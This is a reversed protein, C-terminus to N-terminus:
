KMENADSALKRVKTTVPASVDKSSLPEANPSQAGKNQVKSSQPKSHDRSVRRPRNGPPATQIESIRRRKSILESDGNSTNTKAPARESIKKTAALTFTRVQPRQIFGRKKPSRSIRVTRTSPLNKVSEQLPRKRGILVSPVASSDEPSSPTSAASSTAYMSSGHNSISLPSSKSVLSLPSLGGLPTDMPVKLSTVVRVDPTRLTVNFEDESEYEGEENMSENPDDVDMVSISFQEIETQVGLCFNEDSLGDAHSPNPPDHLSLLSQRFDQQQTEEPISSPFLNNVTSVITTAVVETQKTLPTPPYASPFAPYQRWEDVNSNSHPHSDQHLSLPDIM